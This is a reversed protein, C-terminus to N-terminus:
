YSSFRSGIYFFFYMYRAASMAKDDDVSAGVVVIDGSVSVRYGFYDTATNPSM